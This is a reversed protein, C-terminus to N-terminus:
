TSNPKKRESPRSARESPQTLPSALPSVRPAASRPWASTRLVQLLERSEARARRQARGLAPACCGIGVRVRSGRAPPLFDARKRIRRTHPASGHTFWRSGGRLARSRRLNSGLKVRLRGRGGKRCGLGVRVRSGRAPPWFIQECVSGVPTRPPATHLGVRVAACRAVGVM